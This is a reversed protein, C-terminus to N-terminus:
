ATVGLLSLLILLIGCVIKCGARYYHPGKSKHHKTPQHPKVDKQKHQKKPQVHKPNNHKPRIIQKHSKHVINQVPTPEREVQVPTPKAEESDYDNMNNIM